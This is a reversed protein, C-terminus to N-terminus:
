PNLKIYKIMNYTREGYKKSFLKYCETFTNSEYM